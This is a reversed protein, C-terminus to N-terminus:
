EFRSEYHEEYERNKIRRLIANAACLEGEFSFGRYETQLVALARKAEESGLQGAVVFYVVAQGLNPSKTLEKSYHIKGLLNAAEAQGMNMAIELLSVINSKTALAHYRGEYIYLRALALYAEPIRQACAKNFLDIAKDVDMDFGTVHRSILVAQNYTAAGNQNQVALDLMEKLEALQDSDLKGGLAMDCLGYYAPDEGSYIAAKFIEFAQAYAGLELARRGHEYSIWGM